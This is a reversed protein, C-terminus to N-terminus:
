EQNSAPHRFPNILTLTPNWCQKLKIHVSESAKPKKREPHKQESWKGIAIYNFSKANIPILKTSNRIDIEQTSRLLRKLQNFM